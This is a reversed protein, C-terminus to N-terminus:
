PVCKYLSLIKQHKKMKEFNQNEPDISPYFPLFYDLIFFFIHRNREMDWSGYMMLNYNITFIHLIIIDQQTNQGLHGLVIFIETQRVKYKLFRIDYLRWKHHVHSQSNQYVHTLDDLFNKWKEFNQNKKTKLPYLRLFHGLIVLKLINQEIDWNSYIVDDLNQYHYRCTNEKNKLFSHLM